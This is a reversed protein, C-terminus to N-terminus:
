QKVGVSNTSNIAFVKFPSPDCNLVQNKSLNLYNIYQRILSMNFTNDSSFAIKKLSSNFKSLYKETPNSTKFLFSLGKQNFLSIEEESLLLPDIIIRSSLNNSSLCSLLSEAYALRDQKGMDLAIILFELQDLIKLHKELTEIELDRTSINAGSFIKVNYDIQAQNITKKYSSLEKEKFGYTNVGYNDAIFIHKNNINKLMLVTAKIDLIGTSYTTRVGVDGLLPLTSEASPLDDFNASESGFWDDPLKEVRDLAEQLAKPSTRWQEVLMHVDKNNQQAFSIIEFPPLQKQLEELRSCTQTKIVEQIISKISTGIGKPLIDLNSDITLDEELSSIISAASLFTNRRPKDGLLYYADALSKLTDKIKQNKM